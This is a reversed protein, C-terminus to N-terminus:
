TQSLRGERQFLCLLKKGLTIVGPYGSVKNRFDRGAVRGGMVHKTSHALGNGQLSMCGQNQPINIIIIILLSPLSDLSNPVFAEM